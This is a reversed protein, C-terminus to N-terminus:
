GNGEGELVTFDTLFTDYTNLAADHESEGALSTLTIIFGKDAKNFMLQYQILMSAEDAGYMCIFERAPVELYEFDDLAQFIYNSLAPAMVADLEERTVTLFSEQPQSLVEVCITPMFAATEEVPGALVVTLGLQEELVTWGEPVKMSFGMPHVFMDGELTGSVKQAEGDGLFGELLAHIEEQSMDGGVSEMLAAFVEADAEELGFGEMIESVSVAQAPASFLLAAALLVALWVSRRKM